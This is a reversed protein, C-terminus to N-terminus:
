FTNELSVALFDKHQCRFTHDSPWLVHPYKNSCPETLTTKAGTEVRKSFHGWIEMMAQCHVAKERQKKPWNLLYLITDWQNIQVERNIASNPCKKMHKNAQQIGEEIFPRMMDKAWRMITPEQRTSKWTSRIKFILSKYMEDIIHMRSCSSIIVIYDFEDIIKNIIQLIIKSPLM